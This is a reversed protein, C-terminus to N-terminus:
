PFPVTPLYFKQGGTTKDSAGEAVAAHLHIEVCSGPNFYMGLARKIQKNRLILGPAGGVFLAPFNRLNKLEIGNPNNISIIRRQYSEGYSVKLLLNRRFVALIM